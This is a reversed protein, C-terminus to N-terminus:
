PQRYSRRTRSRASIVSIIAADLPEGTHTRFYDIGLTACAKEVQDLYRHLAELYM